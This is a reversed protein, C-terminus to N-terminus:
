VEISKVASIGGARAAALCRMASEVVRPADFNKPVFSLTAVGIALTTAYDGEDGSRSGLHKSFTAIADHAVALASRRDCDQIIAAVRGAALKVITSKERRAANCAAALARDTREEHMDHLLEPNADASASQAVIL